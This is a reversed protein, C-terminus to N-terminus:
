PYTCRFTDDLEGVYLSAHNDAELAFKRYLLEAGEERHGTRELLAARLMLYDVDDGKYNKLLQEADRLKNQMIAIRALWRRRFNARETDDPRIQDGLKEFSARALALQGAAVYARAALNDATWKDGPEQRVSKAQRIVQDYKKEALLIDLLW